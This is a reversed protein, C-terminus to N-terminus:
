WEDEDATTPAEIGIVEGHVNVTVRFGLMGLWARVEEPLGHRMLQEVHKDMDKLSADIMAKTFLDDKGLLSMMGQSVLVENSQVQQQLWTLVQRDIVEAEVFRRFDADPVVYFPEGGVRQVAAPQGAENVVLGEFLAQRSVLDSM